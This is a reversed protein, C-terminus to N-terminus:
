KKNRKVLLVNKAGIYGIFKRVEIDWFKWEHGLDDIKDYEYDFAKDDLEEFTEKVLLNLDLWPDKGGCAHYVRPKACERKSLERALYRISYKTDKIDTKGFMRIRSSMGECEGEQYRVDAKDGASFAGIASYREPYTLGVIFCGYGGNSLGCIYNDDRQCSLHKFMGYLIEPLESGLFQTFKRGYAMDVYCSDEADVMVVSIHYKDPFEAVTSNYLWDNEDGSGGHCLWLVKLKENDSIDDPFLVRVDSNMQLVNSFLNLKVSIM